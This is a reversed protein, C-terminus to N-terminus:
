KHILESEMIYDDMFFGSGIDQKVEDIVAFGKKKYWDITTANRRNVTLWLAKAGSAVARKQAFQLLMTGLGTGRSTSKVYIKSIMMKTPPENPILALYGAPEDDIIALIYECDSAIQSKIADFSQFKTLMYDVQDQGIISAYHQTWIDKALTVLITIQDDSTVPILTKQM